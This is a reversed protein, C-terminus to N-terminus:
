LPHKHFQYLEELQKMVGLAKEDHWPLSAVQISVPLGEAEKMIMEGRSDISDKFEAPYSTQSSNVQGVPVVGSPCGLVNWIVSYILCPGIGGSMNHPVAPFPFIPCIIADLQLSTYTDYFQQRYEDIENHMDWWDKASIHTKFESFQKVRQEKASNLHFHPMFNGLYTDGSILGNYFWLPKEGQLCETIFKSGNCFIISLALQNCKLVDPIPIQVLTHGKNTLDQIALEIASVVAPSCKIFQNYYFYGIRLNNRTSYEEFVSSNFTLPTVSPDRKFTDEHWISRLILALDDVTRGMPGVAVKMLPYTYSVSGHEPHASLIGKLPMRDATPNIGYIGCFASPIRISGALDTGISIPAVRASVMAADGGSSGGPTHTRKWPNQSTGYINNTSEIALMAQPVNGRIFPIAGHSKLIEVLDANFTDRNECRCALGASSCCGLQSINDKLSIPLGHLIGCSEPNDSLKIDLEYALRLAEEFPEEATLKLDRGITIARQIYTAMVEVCSFRGQKIGQVIELATCSLIAERKEDSVEPLSVKKSLKKNLKSTAKRQFISERFMSIGKSIALASIVVAALIQTKTGRVM